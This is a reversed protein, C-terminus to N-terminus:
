KKYEAVTNPRVQEKQQDAPTWVTESMIADEVWTYMHPPLGGPINQFRKGLALGKRGIITGINYNHLTWVYNWHNIL